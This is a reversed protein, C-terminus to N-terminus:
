KKYRDFFKKIFFSYQIDKEGEVELTCLPPFLVCWWNDGKGDGITILLSEYYGEEYKVDKYEKEPFYNLGYHVLFSKNYNEKKLTEDIVKEFNTINNNITVRAEELTTNLSMTNVLEREINNKVKSKIYQDYNSNSHAIIRLRIAENPIIYYDNSNKYVLLGILLALLILIYKKM